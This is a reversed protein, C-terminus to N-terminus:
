GPCGPDFLRIDPIYYYQWTDDNSGCHPIYGDPYWKCKYTGYCPQTESPHNGCSWHGPAKVLGCANVWYATLGTHSECTAKNTGSWQHCSIEEVACPTCALVWCQVCGAMCSKGGVLVVITSVFVLLMIKIFSTNGLISMGTRRLTLRGAQLICDVDSKGFAAQGTQCPGITPQEPPDKGNLNRGSLGDTQASLGEIVHEFAM